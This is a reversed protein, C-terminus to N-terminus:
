LVSSCVIFLEEKNLRPLMKELIDLYEMQKLYEKRRMEIRDLAEQLTVPPVIISPSRNLAM